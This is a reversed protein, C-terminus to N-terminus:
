SSSNWGLMTVGPSRGAPPRNHNFLDGVMTMGGAM